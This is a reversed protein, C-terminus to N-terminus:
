KYPIAKKLAQDLDRVLDAADELGVSVRILTDDIGLQERTEKPISAHTMVSPIEILSEVAGLSEALTFLKLNSLFAKATSMTGDIYFSVMGSSGSTQKKHIAHQPHSELGPYLVKRIMPHSELFRAVNLANRQHQEMRLALTKLGRNVLFCDFPSSVAGIANQLYKLKEYVEHNNTALAGMIVDSHGNIYKSVSNMSVDAGLTLPSQFYPTLFTNDVVVLIDKNFDKVIKCIVEIDAVKLLPNTPTEFWVLRTNTKLGDRVKNVDCFDVYDINLNFKAAITRFYRNTGGYLEDGTLIHDGASLLNTINTTAALGSGFVM